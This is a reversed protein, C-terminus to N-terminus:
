ERPRRTTGRRKRERNAFRAERSFHAGRRLVHVDSDIAFQLLDVLAGRDSRKKLRKAEIRPVERHFPIEFQDRTSLVRARRERWAIPEFDHREDAASSKWGQKTESLLQGRVVSWPDIV